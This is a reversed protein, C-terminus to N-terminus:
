PVNIIKYNFGEEAYLMLREKYHKFSYNEAKGLRIDDVIDYLIAKTGNKRLVRGIGQLIKIKGKSPHTTIINNLNVINIGTAITQVSGVIIADKDTEVIQRLEDREKGSVEGAYFYVNRKIGLKELKSKILDFLPKGHKEVLKFIVITNGKCAIALNAIKNNRSNSGVLFDMEIDYLRKGTEEDKKMNTKVQRFADKIEKSYNFMLIKIEFDSLTGAEILESTTTYQRIHGFLGTLVLKNVTSDQLTGSLGFKYKTDVMQETIVVLSDAKFTHVEDGILTGFREFYKPDYQSQRNKLKKDQAVYQLAQWTSIVVRKETYKQAGDAITHVYQELDKWGYSEFDKYLQYVLATTPVIILIDNPDNKLYWRTLLYMIFSKGSGTPSLVIGRGNYVFDEFAKFQYDRPQFPLNELTTIFEAVNAKTKSNYYSDVEIEYESENAWQELEPILGVYMQKNQLNYLKKIGDWRGQRVLPHWQWGDVKFSFKQQIELAISKECIIKCFVDNFKDVIIKM